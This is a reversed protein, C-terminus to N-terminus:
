WGARDSVVKPSSRSHPRLTGAGAAIQTESRGASVPAPQGGRQADKQAPRSGGGRDRRGPQRALAQAGTLTECREDPDIVPERERWAEQVAKPGCGLVQAAGEAQDAVALEDGTGGAADFSREGGMRVNLGEVAVREHLIPGASRDQRQQRRDEIGVPQRGEVIESRDQRVSMGGEIGLGFRDTGGLRREADRLPEARARDTM